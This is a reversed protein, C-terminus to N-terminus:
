SSVCQEHILSQNWTAPLGENPQDLNLVEQHEAELCIDEILENRSNNPHGASQRIRAEKLM